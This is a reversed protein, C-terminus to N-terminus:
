GGTIARVADGIILYWGYVALALGILWWWGTRRSLRRGQGAVGRPPRILPFSGRMTAADVSELRRDRWREWQTIRETLIDVVSMLWTWVEPDLTSLDKPSYLFLHDDVIEVDLEAVTDIFRAMIDPTFLYLADTEYGRPCYLEFHRDFDGELSLRQDKAYTVPLRPHLLSNNGVADLVIHPLAVPLRLAVYGWRHEKRNRGSGITTRLNGVSLPSRGDRWLLDRVVSTGGMTFILGPLAVPIAFPRYSLGNARAFRDLRYQRVGSRRRVTRVLLVLMGVPLALYPLLILASWDWPEDPMSGDELVFWWASLFLVPLVALVVAPWIAAMLPPRVEGPLGTRYERLARRDIRETLPRTDLTSTRTTPATM